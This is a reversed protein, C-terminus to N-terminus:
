ILLRLYLYCLMTFTILIGSYIVFKNKPIIDEIDHYSNGM